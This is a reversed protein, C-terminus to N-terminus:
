DVAEQFFDSDTGFASTDMLNGLDTLMASAHNGVDIVGLALGLGDSAAKLNLAELSVNVYSGVGQFLANSADTVTDSEELDQAAKTFDIIGELTEM